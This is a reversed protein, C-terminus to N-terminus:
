AGVGVKARKLGRLVAVVLGLAVIAVLGFVAFGLPQVLAPVSESGVDITSIFRSTRLEFRDPGVQEIYHFNDSTTTNPNFAGGLM